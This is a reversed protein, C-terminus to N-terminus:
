ICIEKSEEDHVSNYGRSLCVAAGRDMPYDVSHKPWLAFGADLSWPFDTNRPEYAAGRAQWVNQFKWRSFCLNRHTSQCRDM